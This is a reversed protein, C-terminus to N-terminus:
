IEEHGLTGLSWGSVADLRGRWLMGVGPMGKRGPTFVRADKLHIYGTRDVHVLADQFRESMQDLLLMAATHEQSAKRIREKMQRFLRVWPEEREIPLDSDVYARHITDAMEDAWQWDGGRSGSADPRVRTMGPAIWPVEIPHMQVKEYLLGTNYHDEVRAAGIYAEM